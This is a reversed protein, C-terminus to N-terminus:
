YIGDERLEILAALFNKVKSFEELRAGAPQQENYFNLINSLMGTDIKGMISAPEEANWGDRVSLQYLAQEVALDSLENWQEGLIIFKGAGGLIGKLFGQVLFLREEEEKLIAERAQRKIEEQHAVARRALMPLYRQERLMEYDESNALLQYYDYVSNRSLINGIREELGEIIEQAKSRSYMKQILAVTAIYDRSYDVEFGYSEFFRDASIARQIFFLGLDKRSLTVFKGNFITRINSLDNMSGFREIFVKSRENAYEGNLYMMPPVMIGRRLIGSELYHVILDSSLYQGKSEEFKGAVIDRYLQAIKEQYLAQTSSYTNITALRAQLEPTIRLSGEPVLSQYLLMLDQNYVTLLGELIARTVDPRPIGLEERKERFKNAAIEALQERSVRTGSNFGYEKLLGGSVSGDNYLSTYVSSAFFRDDISM